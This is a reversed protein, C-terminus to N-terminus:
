QYFWKRINAPEAQYNTMIYKRKRAMKLHHRFFDKWASLTSHEFIVLYVLKKFEYWLIFRFDRIIDKFFSNKYLVWIHNRYSLKNALGRYKNRDKLSQRSTVSRHHFARTDAVLWNEWAWLRLRWALDVDEKYAFFDEDFYECDEDLLCYKVSELAKRRYMVAAGSLGFVERSQMNVDEQGQLWDSIARRRDIKLGFSDISNTMVHNEYDWYYLKGAASAVQQHKQMFDVLVKLYDKDLVIDQNVVLVYDSKSWKILLNNGKAFGINQKQRIIKAPPYYEGVIAVSNDVSANDLVLLEWNEFTQELLSNLFAPLYKEGNWTLLCVTVTINKNGMKAM